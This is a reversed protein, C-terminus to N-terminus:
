DFKGSAHALITYVKGEDSILISKTLAANREGPTLENLLEEFKQVYSDVTSRFDPDRRYRRGFEDFREQGQPTYIKRSFAGRDGAHYRDWLQIVADHDIMRAIDVSLSGLSEM